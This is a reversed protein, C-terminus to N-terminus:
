TDNEKKTSKKVKRPPSIPTITCSLLEQDSMYMRSHEVVYTVPCYKNGTTHDLFLHYYTVPANKDFSDHDRVFLMFAAEIRQTPTKNPNYSVIIKGEGSQLIETLRDFSDVREKIGAYKHSSLVENQLAQNNSLNNYFKKHTETPASIRPKDTLHQLGLLHHFNERGFFLDFETGDEITIHYKVKRIEEYTDIAKQIQDMNDGFYFTGQRLIGPRIWCCQHQTLTKEKPMNGIQRETSARVKVTGGCSSELVSSAEVAM